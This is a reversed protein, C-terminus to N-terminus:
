FNTLEGIKLITIDFEVNEFILEGKVTEPSLGVADDVALSDMIEFVRQSSGAAKAFDSWLSSLAGISFAVTFTYLIFSTLEGFSLRGDALLIGGYWLVASIAAYGAFSVAGSFIAGLRSRYRAM